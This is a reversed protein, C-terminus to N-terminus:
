KKIKRAILTIALVSIASITIIETVGFGTEDLSSDEITGISPDYILEDDFHEFSLYTQISGNGLSSVSCNVTKYEYSNNILYQAQNAYAFFARFQEDGISVQEKVSEGHNTIKYEYGTSNENTNISNGNTDNFRYTYESNMPIIDFRMALNSDERQWPWNNMILDFKMEQGGILEYGDIDQDNLYIHVAITIEFDSYFPSNITESTYNFHVAALEQQDETINVYEVDFGSFTFRVGSLPLTDSYVPGTPAEEKWLGTENFQFVGDQNYDLYEILSHFMVAYEFGDDTMFQFKPVQGGAKAIFHMDMYSITVQNNDEIWLFDHDDANVQSAILMTLFALGITIKLLNNKM